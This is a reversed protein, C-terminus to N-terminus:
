LKANRAFILILVFVVNLGIEKSQNWEVIMANPLIHRYIIIKMRRMKWRKKMM